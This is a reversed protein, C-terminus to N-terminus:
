FTVNSTFYNCKEINQLLRDAEDIAKESVTPDSCSLKKVIDSINDLQALKERDKQTLRYENIM